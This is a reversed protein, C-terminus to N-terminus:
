LADKRRKSTSKNSSYKGSTNWSKLWNDLPKGGYSAIARDKDSQPKAKAGSGSGSKGSSKSGSSKTSKKCSTSKKSSTTKKSTTSKKTGSSKKVTGKSSSTSAKPAKGNVIAQIVAYDYGAETLKKKRDAGNGWKGALVEKAIEENKSNTEAVNKNVM